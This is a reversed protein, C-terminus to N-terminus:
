EHLLSLINHSSIQCGTDVVAYADETCYHFTEVQQMVPEVAAAHGSHNESGLPEAHKVRTVFGGPFVHKVHQIARQM